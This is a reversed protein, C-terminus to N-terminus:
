FGTGDHRIADYRVLAYDGDFALQLLQFERFDAHGPWCKEFYTARDIGDDVPSSFRYELSLVEELVDRRDTEYAEYYRHILDAPSPSMLVRERLTQDRRAVCVRFQYYVAVLQLISATQHPACTLFRGAPWRDPHGILRDRSTRPSVHDSSMM